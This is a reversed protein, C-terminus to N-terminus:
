LFKEALSVIEETIKNQENLKKFTETILSKEADTLEFDKSSDQQPNWFVKGDVAKIGYAILEDETFSVKEKLGKLIKWYILNGEKPLLDMIKIRELVNLKIM